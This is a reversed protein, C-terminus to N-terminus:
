SDGRSYVGLLGLERWKGGDGTETKNFDGDTTGGTTGTESKNASGRM